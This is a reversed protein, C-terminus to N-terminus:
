IGMLIYKHNELTLKVSMSLALHRESWNEDMNVIGYVPM